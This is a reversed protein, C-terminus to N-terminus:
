VDEKEKVKKLFDKQYPYLKWGLANEVFYLLSRKMHTFRVLGQTEGIEIIKRKKEVM